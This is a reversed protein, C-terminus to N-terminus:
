SPPCDDYNSPKVMHGPLRLVGRVPHLLVWSRHDKLIQFGNNRFYQFETFSEQVAPTYIVLTSSKEALVPVKNLDGNFHIIIGERELELTLSSPTKDYGEVQKGLFRFYRALASMGIGGIGLLYVKEIKDIEIMENRLYHQSLRLLIKRQMRHLKRYEQFAGCRRDVVLELTVRILNGVSESDKVLVAADKGVLSM